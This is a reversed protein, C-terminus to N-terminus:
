YAERRDRDEISLDRLPSTTSPDFRRRRLLMFRTLNGCATCRYRTTVSDPVQLNTLENLPHITAVGLACKTTSREPDEYGFVTDYPAPRIVTPGSADILRVLAGPHRLKGIM